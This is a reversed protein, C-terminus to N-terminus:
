RISRIRTLRTRYRIMPEARIRGPCHRRRHRSSDAAHRGGGRVVAAFPDEQQVPVRERVARVECERRCQGGAGPLDRVGDVAERRHQDLQEAVLAGVEERHREVQAPRGNPQLLVRVVLGTTGLCGRVERRLEPQDVLHEVRKANGHHPDDVVLRVVGDAGEGHTGGLLTHVRHDHRRVTVEELEHARADLHHEVAAPDGVDDQVVLGPHLLPEAHRRRLVELVHRQLAVRRVVDGTNGPHPLLGGRLQDLLVARDLRQELVRVLQAPLQLVVHQRRRRLQGQVLLQRPDDGVQRQVDAGLVAHHPLPIGGLHAPEERGELETGQEVPQVLDADHLGLDLHRLQIEALDRGILERRHDRRVRRFRDPEVGVQALHAAGGCRGPSRLGRESRQGRQPRHGVRQCRGVRRFPRVVRLLQFSAREGRADLDRPHHEVREEGAVEEIGGGGVIRQARQALLVQSCIDQTRDVLLLFTLQEAVGSPARDGGFGGRDRQERRHHFLLDVLLAEAVQELRDLHREGGHEAPHFLPAHREVDGVELPHAGVHAAAHRLQLGLDVPLHTLLEVQVRRRLEAHDQVLLQPERGALARRLTLQGRVRAHELLQAIM